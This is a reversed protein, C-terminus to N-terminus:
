VLLALIISVLSLPKCFNEEIVKLVVDNESDESLSGRFARAFAGEGLLEKILYVEGGVFFYDSLPLVLM